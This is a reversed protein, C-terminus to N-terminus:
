LAPLRLPGPGVDDCFALASWAFHSIVNKKNLFFWGEMKVVRRIAPWTSLLM